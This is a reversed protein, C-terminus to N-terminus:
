LDLVVFEKDWDTASGPLMVPNGSHKAFKIDTDQDDDNCGPLLLIFIFLLYSLQKM